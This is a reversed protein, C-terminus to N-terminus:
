LSTSLFLYCKDMISNISRPSSLLPLKSCKSFMDEIESSMLIFTTVLGAAIILIILGGNNVIGSAEDETTVQKKNDIDTTDMFSVIRENVPETKEVKSHRLGLKQLNHVGCSSLPAPMKM